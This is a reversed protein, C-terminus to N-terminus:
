RTRRIVPLWLRNLGVPASFESTNGAADTATATLYPGTLRGPRAFAFHGTADALTTGEYLRGEDEADSFIEVTCGPCATGIIPWPTVCELTPAALMGNGGQRLDIGPGGNAYIANRRLTNREGVIIAVGAGGSCAVTNGQVITRQAYDELWIGTDANGIAVAGSRDTGIRNGLIFTNEIGANRLSIGTINGSIVNAEAATSGGIINHRTAGDLSVGTGNALPRQGGVDTGILNGLILNGVLDEGNLSIGSGENGSIVNREGPATGGVRNYGATGCISIGGHNPVARTGSIDTGILNGIIEDHATGPDSLVVGYPRNGSIVNAEGPGAGGIINGSAGSEAIVGFYNPVARTGTLDTGILNGAVVNGAVGEGVLQIGRSWNGSIVNRLGPTAGGVRNHHAGDQVQIGIMNPRAVQGSVDTGILNGVITNATTENGHLGLGGSNGSLLNGQGLPGAGVHRDGGITNGRGEIIEIANRPLGVIQLGRVTNGDSRILLGHVEGSLRSGDIIVGADSADITVRGQTLPPLASALSITVPRSPPFIAPDFTITDGARAALLAARLTGPGSDLPTTVTWVAAPLAQAPSAGETPCPTSESLRVTRADPQRGSAIDLSVAPRPEASWTSAPLPVAQELTPGDTRELVLLGGPGDAVLVYRGVAVAQWAHGPTDTRTVIVPARPDSVDVVQLGGGADAVYALHGDFTLSDACGPTDWSGVETLEVSDPGATAVELVQVGKESNLVYVGNGDAAVGSTFTYPPTQYAGVLKPNQPDAVDIVKVGGGGVALFALPWSLAVQVSQQNDQDTRIHGLSAPLAPNSIDILRLGAEDPVYLIHGRVVLHRYDIPPFFAVGVRVPQAPHAIDVLHIGNGGSLYTALCALTGTIAVSNTYGGGTDYAGLQRPHAPDSWDIIRLGGTGAAVYALSGSATVWRAEALSAHVGVQTPRAPDAIDIARLGGRRDAVYATRGAVAAQCAIGSAEYAGLERPAARNSVDIMRLGNAGAAAYARGAAVAVSLAWGPMDCHGTERPRAPDAVDVVRLGEWGDALYAVNGAVAVAYAYGPTDLTAIEIPQAPDSVDAILLGAGAAAIYARNSAIAVDFAYSMDYSAGLPRPHRPDSLDVCRLGYPGDALYATTGSIAVGEAYGPSDWAGVEAPITPNSVDVVRLGAGGSAVLAYPRAPDLAVGEVFHPFPATAGVQRMQAPNSVDLVELRLGVGVYAYSGRVAVCTTPGGIQGVLRFTLATQTAVPSLPGPLFLSCACLVVLAARALPDLM